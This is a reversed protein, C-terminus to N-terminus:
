LRVLAVGQHANRGAEAEAEAEPEPDGVGNSELPESGLSGLPAVYILGTEM